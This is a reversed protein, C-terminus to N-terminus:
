YLDESYLEYRMTNIQSARFSITAAEVRDVYRNRNTVFGQSIQKYKILRDQIKLYNMYQLINHHRLGSLVFGKDINIPNHPLVGGDKNDICYDYWIAACVIKECTDEM